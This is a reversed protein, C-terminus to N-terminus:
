NTSLCYGHEKERIEAHISVIDMYGAEEVHYIM